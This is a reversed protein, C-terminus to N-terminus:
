AADIFGHEYHASLEALMIDHLDKEGLKYM